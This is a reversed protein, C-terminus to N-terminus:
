NEKSGMRKKTVLLVISGAVLMGGIIYFLKTGIGGTTPLTAGQRNVITVPYISDEATIESEENMVKWNASTADPGTANNNNNTITITVNAAKNYGSPVGTEELTYTGATLGTFTIYGNEDVEAELEYPSGQADEIVTSTSAAKQKKYKKDTDDYLSATGANPATTTYTGDALKWHTGGSTVEVFEDHSVVKVYKMDSSSLTFKAGQLAHGEDDQKKIKIATTYTKVTDTLTEGTPPTDGGPEDPHGADKGSASVNPDNSYTLKASNTNGADTIVANSNLKATCTIVIDDGPVCDNLRDIINEFVIKVTNEGTVVYYDGTTDNYAETDLSLTKKADTNGDGDDKDDYVIISSVSQFTLGASLTDDVIFFYKNYGTTDPVKTKIHYTITDGIRATNQDIENTGDFIKKEITPLSYKPTIAPTDGRVELINASRATGTLTSTEDKIVYWGDSLGTATYADGSETLETGSGTIVGTENFVKALGEKQSDTLGSLMTAFQEPTTVTGSGSFSNFKTSDFAKLKTELTPLNIGASWALTGTLKGDSYTGTIIPYAKYTHAVTDGTAKNVTITAAVATMCTAAMPTVSLLGATLMALVKKNTKM